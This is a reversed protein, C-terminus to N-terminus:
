YLYQVDRVPLVRIASVVVQRRFCQLMEWALLYHQEASEMVANEEVLRVDVVEHLVQQRVNLLMSLAHAEVLQAREEQLAHQVLLSHEEVQPAYVEVENFVQERLQGRGEVLLQAYGEVQRVYEVVQLPAYEVVLMVCGM